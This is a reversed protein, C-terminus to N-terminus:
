LMNSHPGRQAGAFTFEIYFRNDVDLTYEAQLQALLSDIIKMGLGSTYSKSDRDFGSGNDEYVVKIIDDDSTITLSIRNDKSPQQFAYKLSNTVLENVLLGLPVAQNINLSDLDITLKHVVKTDGTEMNSKITSILKEYYTNLNVKNFHDSQYLLEHVMSISLVRNQAETLRYREEESTSRFVQLQLLSVVIALNNKVRHHIEQLLTEKEALSQRLRTRNKEIETVDIVTVLIESVDGKEDYICGGTIEIIIENNLRDKRTTMATLQGLETTKKILGHFEEMHEKRVHPLFRGQVEEKSYGIMREAAPNWFDQVIGDTNISYIAIPSADILSRLRTNALRLNELAIVREHVNTYLATWSTLIDDNFQPFVNVQFWRYEGDKRKLRHLAQHSKQESFVEAWIKQIEDLDDPHLFPTWDWNQLDAETKGFFDLGTTNMHTLSLEPTSTWLIHPLSETLVQYKQESKKLREETVRSLDVAIILVCDKGDISVPLIELSAEMSHGEKHHLVWTDVPPHLSANRDLSAFAKQALKFFRIPMLLELSKGLVEKESYGTINSFGNNVYMFELSADTICCALKNSFYLPSGIIERINEQPTM